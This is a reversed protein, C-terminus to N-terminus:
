RRRTKRRRRRRKRRTRKRRTRKRRTRKHRKSRGRRLGGRSRPRPPLLHRVCAACGWPFVGVQENCDACRWIINEQEAGEILTANRKKSEALRTNEIELVSRFRRRNVEEEDARPDSRGEWVALAAARAADGDERDDVEYSLDRHLVPRRGGGGGGGGGGDGGAGETARVAKNSIDELFSPPIDGQDIDYIKSQLDEFLNKYKKIDIDNQIFLERLEEALSWREGPTLKNMDVATTPFNNSM